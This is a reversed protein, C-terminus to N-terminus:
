RSASRFIRGWNIGNAINGERTSFWIFLPKGVIHDEPVYGWVRADESNHRNDGMMWYYDQKFTYSDAQKGNIFFKGDRYDLNNNEYVTIIRYYFAMSITDLKVTAGKKPVFLPGYDDMTWDIHNAPDHPFHKAADMVFPSVQISDYKLLQTYQDDTLYMLYSSPGLMQTLNANDVGANALTDMPYNVPTSLAYRKTPGTVVGPDMKRLLDAQEANLIVLMSGTAPDKKLIDERSIGMKSFAKENLPGASSRLHHIFQLYQPNDAPKGNVYLQRNIIQISDGPIAVCRKIYHDKKDVPRVAMKAKGSSIQQSELPGISGRRYDYISWTRNPFVFVSDGEPYNFVVPDNRDIKELAPLRRYPLNPKSLYSEGGVLPARNHVLPLMAITQPTRIGYNVKSVFLFDGTMLSGEMSSTPIVYAELLFMRIFSAAFVAFIIAETWERVPTKKFAPKQQLKSIEKTNKSDTATKLQARYVQLETWAPEGFKEKEQFALYLFYFPGFIVALVSAWFGYHRFSRITDIALGAYIFINVIPFLFWIAHIKKRGVMASWEMLNIGPILGKVGAINAKPFLFYLSASLLLFWIILVLWFGTM